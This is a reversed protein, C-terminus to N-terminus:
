HKSRAKFKILQSSRTGRVHTNVLYKVVKNKNAQEQGRSSDGESRLTLKLEQYDRGPASAKAGHANSM